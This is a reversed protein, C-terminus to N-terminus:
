FADIDFEFNEKMCAIFAEPNNSHCEFIEEAKEIFEKKKVDKCSSIDENCDKISKEYLKVYEENRRYFEENAKLMKNAETPDFPPLNGGLQSPLHDSSIFDALTKIDSHLHITKKIKEPLLPIFVSLIARFIVNINVYHIARFRLPYSSRFALTAFASMIRPTLNCFHSLSLGEADVICIIKKEQARHLNLQLDMNLLIVRIVDIGDAVSTDWNAFRFFYIYSGNQDPKPLFQLINMNLADEMKSPLLNKIYQPYNVRTNYYNKLMQLSSPLDFETARLFGLLFMDDMLCTIRQDRILKKFSILANEDWLFEEKEEEFISDKIEMGSM